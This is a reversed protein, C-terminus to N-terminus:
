LSRHWIKDYKNTILYWTYGLYGKLKGKWNLENEVIRYSFNFDSFLQFYFPLREKALMYGHRDADTEDHDVGKEKVAFHHGLEHFVTAYYSGTGYKMLSDAILIRPLLYDEKTLTSDVGTLVCLEHYTKGYKKEILVLEVYNKNVREQYDKCTTYIYMGVAENGEKRDKNMEKYPKVFIPLDEEASIDQVVKEIIAILRPHKEFKFCLFYLDISLFSLAGVIFLLVAGIIILPYLTSAEM